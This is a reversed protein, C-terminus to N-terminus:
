KEIGAFVPKPTSAIGSHRASAKRVSAASTTSSPATDYAVQLSTASAGNFQLMTVASYLAGGDVLIKFTGTPLTPILSELLVGTTGGPTLSGDSQTQLSALSATTGTGALNGSGDYVHVTFTAATSDENNVVLSIKHAGGDDIGEASWQTWVANDWAIPVSITWPLTTIASTYILQPLVNGCTVQDPCFFVAYVTGSATAGYNPASSTAGHMDIEAAQNAFLAFTEDNASATVAGTTDMSLRAGTPDYFSYDVGIAGSAPGAVRIASTWGGGAAFWVFTGSVYCSYGITAGASNTIAVATENLQSCDPAVAAYYTQGYLGAAGLAILGVLHLSIRRV